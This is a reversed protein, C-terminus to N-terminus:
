TKLRLKLGAQDVSPTGPYGPGIEKFLLPFSKQCIDDLYKIQTFETLSEYIVINMGHQLYVAQLKLLLPLDKLSCIISSPDLSM